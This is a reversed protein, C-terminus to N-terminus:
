ISSTSFYEVLREMSAFYTEVELASVSSSAIIITTKSVCMVTVATIPKVISKLRVSKAGTLTQFTMIQARIAEIRGKHSQRRM